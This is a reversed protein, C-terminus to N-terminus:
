LFKVDVCRDNVDNFFELETFIRIVHVGATTIRRRISTVIIHESQTVVFGAGKIFRVANQRQVAYGNYDYNTAKSVCETEYHKDARM